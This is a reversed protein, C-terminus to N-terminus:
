GKIYFLEKSFTTLVEVDGAETIYIDDEIRVGGINPLYIGPEITFLMGEKLREKNKAHISPEEHVELGLGHGTRHIFYDGYSKTEIHNRAALDVAKVEENVEVADIARLNAEKVTEYIAKQEETGNGVIFTRTIDSHYGDVTVGFDFLLFDGDQIKGLGSVGHPLASNKGSLVLTDFAMQEAGLSQLYFELEMKVEMETMGIKVFDVIHTLGQETIEIAKKVHKIEAATKHLREQAIFSEISEIQVNNYLSEIQELQGITMIDKEVALSKIESHVTKKVIEYGDETDSIAIMEDVKAVQKAAEYDLEPLFLYSKGEKTDYIYAFFREHPDSNFGTYYHIHVPSLIFAIDCNMQQLQRELCQQRQIIM